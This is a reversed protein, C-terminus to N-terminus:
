KRKSNNYSIKALGYSAGIATAYLGSVLAVAGVSILIGGSVNELSEVTLEENVKVMEKVM